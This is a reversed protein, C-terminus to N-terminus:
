CSFPFLVFFSSFCLGPEVSAKAARGRRLVVEVEEVDGGYAADVDDEVPTKVKKSSDRKAVARKPRGRSLPPPMEEDAVDPEERGDSGKEQVFGLQDEPFPRNVEAEQTVDCAIDVPADTNVDALTSVPAPSPSKFPSQVQPEESLNVPSSRASKTPTQPAAELSSRLPSTLKDDVRRVLPSVPPSPENIMSVKMASAVQLESDIGIDEIGLAALDLASSPAEIYIPEEVPLEKVPSPITSTANANRSHSAAPAKSRFMHPSPIDTAVNLRRTPSREPSRTPSSPVMEMSREKDEEESEGGRSTKLLDEFNELKPQGITKPAQFLSRIGTLVPSPAATEETPGYM